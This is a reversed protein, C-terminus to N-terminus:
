VHNVHGLSRELRPDKVPILPGSALKRLFFSAFLGVVGVVAALDVWWGFVGYGAMGEGERAAALAADVPVGLAVAGNEAQQLDYAYVEPRVIWILDLVHMALLWAAGLAVLTTHRKVTRPLLFLFPVIFHGVALIAFTVEWGYSRRLNMFATEEPINSYWILFYQSFAIYAWFVTFSFLLKGLDHSHEATAVGTLRGMGRLLSSTLVVIAICSLASGAFYYVGWMTSFFHYDVSMLLDFSLFALTIATVPVGWASMRRCKSTLWRDGTRDQQQSWSYLSQSLFTLVTAYLVCRVLFFPVNLFGSKHEYLHGESGMWDFLKGRDHFGFSYLVVELLVTPAALALMVPIMSMLHEFIRRLTVCWSANLLHFIMVLLLAGCCPALCAMVAAHYAAMAHGLGFAFAGLLTVVLGALGAILCTRAMGDAAGEPLHINDRALRPDRGVREMRERFADDTMVPSYTSM